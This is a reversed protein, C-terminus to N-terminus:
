CLNYGGDIAIESGTVFASDDSALFLAAAAIESAQGNRGLPTVAATKAFYDDNESSSLGASRGIATEINGPAISNVRIRREQLDLAFSRALATIAAKTATYASFAPFAKKAAISSTLIISSGDRLAPLLTQVTFFTGKLNTAITRDFAEESVDGIPAFTAIGANAFLIDAHGYTASVHDRLAVLDQNRTVDVTFPDFSGADAQQAAAQRLERENLDTIVVTAGEAAFLQAAALGIGCAAGTVVAVRGDLKGM